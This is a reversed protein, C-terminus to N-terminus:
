SLLKDDLHDLLEKRTKWQRTTCILVRIAHWAIEMFERLVDLSEISAGHHVFDSRLKYAGKISRVINKRGSLDRGM